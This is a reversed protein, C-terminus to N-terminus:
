ARHTRRWRMDQAYADDSQLDVLRGALCAAGETSGAKLHRLLRAYAGIPDPPRMYARKEFVM